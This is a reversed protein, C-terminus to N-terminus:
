NSFAWIKDNYLKSKLGCSICQFGKTNSEHGQYKTSVEWQQRVM